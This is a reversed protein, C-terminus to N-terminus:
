CRRRPMSVADTDAAFAELYLSLERVAAAAGGGPRARAIAVQSRM